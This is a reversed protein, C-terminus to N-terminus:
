PPLTAILSGGDRLCRQLNRVARGLGEGPIRELVDLCFVLDFSNEPPAMDAINGKLLDVEISEAKFRKRLAEVLYTSIDIGTVKLGMGVLKRLLYGEGLGIECATSAKGIRRSAKRM